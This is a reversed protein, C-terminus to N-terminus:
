RGWEEAVYLGDRRCARRVSARTNVEDEIVIEVLREPHRSSGDRLDRVSFKKYGVYGGQRNKANVEGCWALPRESRHRLRKFHLSDPDYFYSFEVLLDRLKDESLNGGDAVSSYGAFLLTGIMALGVTIRASM